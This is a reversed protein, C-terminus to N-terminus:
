YYKLLYIHAIILLREYFFFPTTFNATISRLLFFDHKKILSLLDVGIGLFAFIQVGYFKM